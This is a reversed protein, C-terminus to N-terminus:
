SPRLPRMFSFRVGQIIAQYEAEKKKRIAEIERDAEDKARKLTM